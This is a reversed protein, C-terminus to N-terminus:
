DLLSCFSGLDSRQLRSDRFEDAVGYSPMNRYRVLVSWVSWNRGSRGTGALGVLGPWVSWIQGSQGFIALSAQRSRVQGLCARGLTGILFLSVGGLWAIGELLFHM